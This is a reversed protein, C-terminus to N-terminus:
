YPLFVLIHSSMLQSHFYLVTKWVHFADTAAVIIIVSLAVAVTSGVTAVVVAAPMLIIRM